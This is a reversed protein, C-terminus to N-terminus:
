LLFGPGVLSSPQLFHGVVAFALSHVLRFMVLFAVGLIQAEAQFSIGPAVGPTAGVTFSDARPPMYSKLGIRFETPTCAQSAEGVIPASTGAIVGGDDVDVLSHEPRLLSAASNALLFGLPAKTEVV